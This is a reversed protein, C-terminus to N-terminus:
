NVARDIDLDCTVTVIETLEAIEETAEAHRLAATQQESKM